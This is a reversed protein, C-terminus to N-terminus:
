CCYQNAIGSATHVTIHEQHYASSGGSVHLADTFIFLDSFVNYRTPQLKSRTSINCFGLLWGWIRLALFMVVPLTCVSSGCNHHSRSEARQMHVPIFKIYLGLPFVATIVSFINPVVACFKTARAVRRASKQARSMYQIADCSTIVTM